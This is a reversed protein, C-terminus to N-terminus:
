ALSELLLLCLSFAMFTAPFSTPFITTFTVTIFFFKTATFPGWAATNKALLPLSPMCPDPWQCCQFSNM